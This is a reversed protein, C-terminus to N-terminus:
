EQREGQAQLRDESPGITQRTLFSPPRRPPGLIAEWGHSRESGDRHSSNRCSGVHRWFEWWWKRPQDQPVVSETPQTASAHAATSGPDSVPMEAKSGHHAEGTIHFVAHRMEVAAMAKRYEASAYFDGILDGGLDDAVQISAAMINEVNLTQSLRPSDPRDVGTGGVNSECSSPGIRGGCHQGLHM